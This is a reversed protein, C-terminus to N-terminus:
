KSTLFHTEANALANLLARLTQTEFWLRQKLDDTFDSYPLDSSLLEMLKVLHESSAQFDTGDLFTTFANEVSTLPYSGLLHQGAGLLTGPAKATEHQM